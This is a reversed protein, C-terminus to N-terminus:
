SDWVSKGVVGRLRAALVRTVLKYVWGLLSIPRFDSHNSPCGVKPVLSIFLSSFRCDFDVPEFFHVFM